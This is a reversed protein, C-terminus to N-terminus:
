FAYLADREAAVRVHPKQAQRNSVDVPEPFLRELAQVIGVYEFIGMPVNPDIDVMIDLDSDARAEGRATSGFLAAHHVGLARLASENAKLVAIVQASDMGRHYRTASAKALTAIAIMRPRSPHCTPICVGYPSTAPM